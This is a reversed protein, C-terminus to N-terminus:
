CVILLLEMNIVEKPLNTSLTVTDNEHAVRKWGACFHVGLVMTKNELNPPQTRHQQSPLQLSAIGIRGTEVGIENSNKLAKVTSISVCDQAIKQRSKQKM